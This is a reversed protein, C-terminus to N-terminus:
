NNKQKKEKENKEKELKEIKEREIKENETEDKESSIQLVTEIKKGNEGVAVIKTNPANEPMLTYLIFNEKGKTDITDKVEGDVLEGDKGVTQEVVLIKDVNKIKFILEAIGKDKSLTYIITKDKKFGNEELTEETLIDEKTRFFKGDSRKGLELEPSGKTKKTEKNEGAKEETKSNNDKAKAANNKKIIPVCIIVAIIILAVIVIVSVPLKKEKLNRDYERM